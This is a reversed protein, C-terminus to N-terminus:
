EEKKWEVRFNKWASYVRPEETLGCNAYDESGGLVLEKKLESCMVKVPELQEDFGLVVEIPSARPFRKNLLPCKVVM